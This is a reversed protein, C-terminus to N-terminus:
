KWIRIELEAPGWLSPIQSIYESDFSFDSTIQLDVPNTGNIGDYPNSASGNGTGSPNLDNMFDLSDLLKLLGNDISDNEPDFIDSPDPGVQIVSSGEPVNDGNTDYYVTVTSGKMRPFVDTYETLRVGHIGITYIIRDDPSGGSGNLTNLGVGIKVSNNGGAKLLNVPMNIVYPDGLESYQSSFNGLWYIRTWNRNPTNSSNVWLRDTWYSSSYSTMKADLIDTDNQISFWGTKTGTSNDTITSNGSMDGLRQTEFNLTIEGYSLPKTVPRYVYEIYSDPYLTNNFSVNGSVEVAQAQYSVRLMDRAINRYIEVLEESNESTFFHSCNDCCAIDQMTVPDAGSGFAV